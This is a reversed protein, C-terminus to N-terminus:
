HPTAAPVIAQTAESSPSPLVALQQQIYDLENLATQNGPELQLSQQYAERAGALDGLEVLTYGVGRLAMPKIFASEANQQALDLATRYSALGEDFRKLANLVFGREVRAMPDYPGVEIAIDLFHLAEEMRKAGALMYGTQQYASSCAVDLWETPQGKGPGDMYQEYQRRSSFSLARRGPQQRQADCYALAKELLPRATAIDGQQLARTAKGVDARYAYGTAPEAAYYQYTEVVGVEASAVHMVGGLLLLCAGRMIGKM